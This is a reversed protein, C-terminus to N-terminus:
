PRFRRKFVAVGVCGVGFIMAYTSPEPVVVSIMGDTITIPIDAGLATSYKTSGFGAITNDLNFSWSQPSSFGVTSITITAFTTTSGAGLTVSGPTAPVTTTRNAYQTTSGPDNQTSVGDFVTGTIIDVGTIDPGDVTGGVEPGGDAVQANFNLAGVQVASGQNQVVLTFTQGATNPQLPINGINVFLQGHSELVVGLGGMLAILAVGKRVLKAPM